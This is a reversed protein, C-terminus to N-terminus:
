FYAMRFSCRFSSTQPLPSLM